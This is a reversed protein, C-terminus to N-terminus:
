QMITENEERRKKILREYEEIEEKSVGLQYDKAFEIGDIFGEEERTM